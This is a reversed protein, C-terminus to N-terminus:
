CARQPTADPGSGRHWDRATGEPLARDRVDFRRPPFPRPWSWPRALRPTRRWRCCAALDHILILGGPLKVAGEVLVLGPLVGDAPVVAEPPADIVGTTKDVLLAVPRRRTHAYIIHDSLRLRRPQHGLRRRMDIVPMVTGALDVIGLVIAPAGPLPAIAVARLARRVQRIPLAYAQTDLEFVLLALDSARAALPATASRM